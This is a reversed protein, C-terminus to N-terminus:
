EFDGESEPVRYAVSSAPDRCTRRCGCWSTSAQDASRASAILALTAAIILPRTMAGRTAVPDLAAPNLTFSVTRTHVSENEGPVRVEVRATHGGTGFTAILEAADGLEIVVPIETLEDRTVRVHEAGDIAVIMTHRQMPILRLLFMAMVPDGPRAPNPVIQLASTSLHFEECGAAGLAGGVTLAFARVIVHQRSRWPQM